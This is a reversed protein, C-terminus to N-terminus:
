RLKDIRFRVSQRFKNCNTRRRCGMTWRVHATGGLLSWSIFLVSSCIFRAAFIFYGAPFKYSIRNVYRQYISISGNSERAACFSSPASTYPLFNVQNEESSCIPRNLLSYKPNNSTITQACLYYKCFM